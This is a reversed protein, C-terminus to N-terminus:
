ALTRSTISLNQSSRTLKTFRYCSARSLDSEGLTDANWLKMGDLSSSVLARGNPSYEVSLVNDSQANFINKILNGHVYDWFKISKHSGMALQTNNPSFSISFVPETNQLTQILMPDGSNFKYLHINSISSGTALTRADASFALATVADNHDRLMRLGVWPEPEPDPDEDTAPSAAFASKCWILVTTDGGGSALHSSTPTCAVCLVSNEHGRLTQFRDLSSSWVKLNANNGDSCTVVGSSDPLFKVQNVRFPHANEARHKVSGTSCTHILVTSQDEKGSGSAVLTNDFSFSVATVPAYHGYFPTNTKYSM